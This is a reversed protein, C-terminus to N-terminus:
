ELQDPPKNIRYNMDPLRRRLDVPYVPLKEKSIIEIKKCDVPKEAPEAAIMKVQYDGVQNVAVQITTIEVCSKESVNKKIQPSPDNGREDPASRGVTSLALM